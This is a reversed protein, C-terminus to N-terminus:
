KAYGAATILACRVGAKLLLIIGRALEDNSDFNGGDTYLTQDGDFSVLSLSKGLALVQCVCRPHSMHYIYLTTSLELQECM